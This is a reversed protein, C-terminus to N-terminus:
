FVYATDELRVLDSEGFICIEWNRKREYEQEFWRRTTEIATLLEDYDWDRHTKPAGFANQGCCWVDFGTESPLGTDTYREHIDVVLPKDCVPCSPAYFRDRPITFVDDRLIDL